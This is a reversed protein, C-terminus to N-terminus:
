YACINNGNCSTIQYHYIQHDELNRLTVTHTRTRYSPNTSAADDYVPGLPYLCTGDDVSCSASAGYDIQSTALSNTQWTIIAYCEGTGCTPAVEINPGNFIEPANFDNEVDVQRTVINSANDSDFAQFEITYLGNPTNRDTVWQIAFACSTTNCDQTRVVTYAPNSLSIIKAQVRTVAVNDTALGTMTISGIIVPPDIAAAPNDVSELRPPVADPAAATTFQLPTGDSKTSVTTTNRQPSIDHSVVSYSYTTSPSLGSPFNISHHCPMTACAASGLAGIGGVIASGDAPENVDWSITVSDWGPMAQINTIVPNTTDGTVNLNVRTEHTLPLQSTTIILPYVGTRATNLAQVHIQFTPSSTPSVNFQQPQPIVIGTENNVSYGVSVQGSFNNISSLTAEFFTDAGGATLNQAPPTITLDFDPQASLVLTVNATRDTLGPTVGRIVLAATAAPASAAATVELAVDDILENAAFTATTVAVGGRIFRSTVGSPLGTVSLAVTGAFSENAKMTLAYSGTNGAILNPLPSNPAASLTYNRAVDVGIDVAVDASQGDGTGTATLRYTGATPAAASTAVTMTVGGTYPSTITSPSFTAVLGNANNSTFTVPQNFGYLPHVDVTYTVSQGQPARQVTSPNASLTFTPADYYLYGANSVGVNGAADFARVIIENGADGAILSNVPFTISWNTAPLTPITLSQAAGGNLQYELRTIPNTDSVTGTVTFPLSSVRVTGFSGLYAWSEPSFDVAPATGDYIVHLTKTAYNQGDFVRFEEDKSGTASNAVVTQNWIANVNTGSIPLSPAINTLHYADPRPWCSVFPDCMWMDQLSINDAITGRVLYQTDAGTGHTYVTDGSAPSTFTITPPETDPLPTLFTTFAGTVYGSNWSELAAYYLQNRVLSTSPISIAHTTTSLSDPITTGTLGYLATHNNTAAYVRTASIPAVAQILSDGLASAPQPDYVPTSSGSPIHVVFGGQSFWVDDPASLAVNVINSASPLSVQQWTLNTPSVPYKWLHGSSGGAWITKGDVSALSAVGVGSGNPLTTYNWTAGGDTTHAVQGGSGAAWVDLNNLALIAFFHQSSALNNPTKDSWVGNQLAYVKQGDGAMWVSNTTPTSVAYLHNAISISPTISTWSTGNTSQLIIPRAPTGGLEGVAWVWNQSAADVGRIVRSASDTYQAASWTTGTTGFVKGNNTVAWASRNPLATMAMMTESSPLTLSENTWAPASESYTVQTTGPTQTTWALTPSGSALNTVNVGTPKLGPITYSSYDIISTTSQFVGTFSLNVARGPRLGNITLTRGGVGNIPASWLTPKTTPTGCSTTTGLCYSSSFSPPVEANANITVQISNVGSVSNTVTTVFDTCEGLNVGGVCVLGTLCDEGNGRTQPGLCVALASAAIAHQTLMTAVLAGFIIGGFGLALRQQLHRRSTMM